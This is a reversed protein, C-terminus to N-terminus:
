PYICLLAARTNLLTKRDPFRFFITNWFLIERFIWIGAKVPNLEIYRGCELLYKGKQILFSKFRDQSFHGIGKYKRRYYRTYTVNIRKIAGSLSKGDPAAIIMHVHNDMLIYHYIKLNYKKKNDRLLESYFEFDEDWRFIRRRDNGRIVVHYIGDDITFRKRRPM